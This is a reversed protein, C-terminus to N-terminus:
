DLITLCCVTHIENVPESNCKTKSLFSCFLSVLSDLHSFSRSWTDLHNWNVFHPPKELWSWSTQFGNFISTHVCLTYISLSSFSDFLANSVFFASIVLIFHNGIHLSLQEWFLYKFNISARLLKDRLLYLM